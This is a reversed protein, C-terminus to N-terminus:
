PSPPAMIRFAFELVRPLLARWVADDHGGPVLVMEAPMDMMRWEQRLRVVQAAIGLHDADGSAVLLPLAIGRERLGPLLAPYNMASWVSFDFETAGFVGANRAASWKPPVPVYIAPSLLAVAAFREPQKMALRLAAYGGASIGGIAQGARTGLGRWRRTAEPILEESLATEMRERGNVGWSRRLEPVVVVAPPMTGAAIAADIIGALERRLLDSTTAGQGPLFFLMPYRREGEGFGRPLYASVPWARGLVTSQLEVQVMETGQAARPPAAAWALVTVVLGMLLRPVARSATRIM